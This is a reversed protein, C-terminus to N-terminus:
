EKSRRRMGAKAEADMPAPPGAPAAAAPAAARGAATLKGAGGFTVGLGLRRDAFGDEDGPEGNGDDPDPHQAKWTEWISRALVELDQLPVGAAAAELLIEDAQDRELPPLPDTWQAIAKAWSESVAGGVPARGARIGAGRHVGGAGGREGRDAQGAGAAAAAAHGRAGDHGAVDLGDRGPSGPGRRALGLGRGRPRVRRSGAGPDGGGPGSIM